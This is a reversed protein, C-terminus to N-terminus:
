YSWKAGLVPLIPLGTIYARQRYDYGYVIEEANSTDTVNQVDLYVEAETKGIKFTKAVRADLQVFAPIRETNKAGFLPQYSDTRADYYSGVVPTRPFGTSVRFRLGVEFGKGLDLSGVATLTHTQDYDFLRYRQGPADQRESRSISYSLWGFFPGIREQRLMFQVGYARGSGDQVLARALEPAPSSSRAVLSEMVNYFGTVELSLTRTLHFAGGALTHRGLSLGLTPNGFVASLDGPAPPQHYIGFAAKATFRPSVQYRVAIRPEVATDESFLGVPPEDGRIPRSRSVSVLYPELRMGGIVHLRDGLPAVDAEVFPAFGGVVTNWDDVNVQDAPPQGFVHVDGERAPSTVSGQRRVTSATVESDLGVTVTLWKAPQTRYSARLGFVDGTADLTTPTAGFRDALSSVNRGYYPLVSIADNHETVKSYRVWVRGFTLGRSERKTQAPDPDVLNYDTQDSSLLGGLELSEKPSLDYQLRAQADWFQPLPVVDAVSASGVGEVVEKLYGKRGALTFHLKDGIPGRVSAAADIVDASVSGHVKDDDMPRLAVTILGGLGRGYQAGYGGPVLEVSKVLDGHVVSRYGGDHYLRPVRVGQVYVGTDEPASGWVVIAGSGVAARAVGPMSEVVKLVDGQTGPIKTAEKATIETSIVQKGLRPATVVIEFDSDDDPAKETKLEVDYTADLQKGAEFSEETGIPTLKEGTLTVGHKGPAVGHIVFKGDAGTVANQGTDLAVTVGAVPKSTGRDVVQGTMEATTPKKVEQRIVFQYRYTIKVPVAKGNVTAPAFVFQKAAAVAAADFDPGASGLVKVAAVAGTEDIGIQLTVTAQVGAAKRDQPYAAEVFRQLKPPVIVRKEPGVHTEGSLDQARATAGAGALAVCAFWVSARRALRM